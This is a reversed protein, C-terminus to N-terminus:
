LKFLFYMYLTYRLKGINIKTAKLLKPYFELVKNFDDKTVEDRSYRAKIFIETVEGIKHPYFKGTNDLRNAHDLPTEGEKIDADQISMFKLYYKYLELVADRPSLKSINSIRSKRRFINLFVILAIVLIVALVIAIVALLKKNISKLKKVTENPIQQNYTSVPSFSGTPTPSNLSPTPTQVQPTSTSTSQYLNHSFSATPEFQIWGVGEFYVEVWAHARENTVEYLNDKGPAAPLLYGEVYRAPIGICRTLVAMATAFYTCYGEKREFLFYDVFDVDDPVEGPTLNYKYNKSLYQEIAKVRDYDNDENKTISFALDKVRQPVTYSFEFYKSYVNSSNNSLEYLTYIWEFLDQNNGYIHLSDISDILSLVQRLAHNKDEESNRYASNVKRILYGTLNSKMDEVNSSEVFMQVLDNKDITIKTGTNDSRNIINLANTYIYDCFQNISHDLYNQYLYRHSTRLLNEFDKDSYKIGYTDFSYTFGKGLLKRSILVGEANVFIDNADSDPFQLNFTKLPSFLSYTNINEYHIEITHKPTDRLINLVEATYGNLKRYYDSLIYIGNEFEFNDFNLKNNRNKLEYYSINTNIWSSGTYQDSSRGKLYIRKPSKVKLVLTKDLVVDSGLKNGDNGFGTSSLGFYGINVTKVSRSSLNMAYYLKDDLWKWEIPRPSVPIYLTLLLVVMAIPAIFVIFASPNVFDNSEQAWKKNYIHLFYYIMVSVIFTYFSIYALEVVFYDFMWQICFISIGTLLLLYFNFKKITFIYVLLSFAFAFLLTFVIAFYENPKEKGQVYNFIWVFPETIRYFSKKYVSYIVVVLGGSIFSIVSVKTMIGNILFISFLLLFISVLGLVELSTYKFGLTTTFPYVFSFSLAIMLILKIIYEFLKKIQM